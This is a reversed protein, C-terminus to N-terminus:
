IKNTHANLFATKVQLDLQILLNEATIRLDPNDPLDHDLNECLRVGFRDILRSYEGPSMPVIERCKSM